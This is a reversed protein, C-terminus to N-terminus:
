VNRGLTTQFKQVATYLASVKASTLGSALFALACENESFNNAAGAKNLANLFMEANPLAGANTGSNGGLVTANRYANIVTPSTRSSIFLGQSSAGGSALDIRQQASGIETFFRDSSQDRIVMRMVRNTADTGDTASLVDGSLQTQTRSYYGLSTDNTNLQAAPYVSTRAYGTTGDPKSGTASHTWGGQFILDRSGKAGYAHTTAVGGLFPWIEYINDYIGAAQIDSILTKYANQQATPLTVGANAIRTLYAQANAAAQEPTTPTGGPVAGYPVSDWLLNDGIKTFSLLTKAGSGQAIAFGVSNEGGLIPTFGGGNGQVFLLYGGAVVPLNSLQLTRSGNATWTAVNGASYDWSTTPADQLATVTGGILSQLYLFNGDIENNTLGSGKAARTLLAM